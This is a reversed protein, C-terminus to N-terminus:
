VSHSSSIHPDHASPGQGLSSDSDKQSHVERGQKQGHGTESGHSSLKLLLRKHPVKGYTRSQATAM